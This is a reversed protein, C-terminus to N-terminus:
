SAGISSERASRAPVASSSAMSSRSTIKSTSDLTKDIAPSVAARAEPTAASGWLLSFTITAIILLIIVFLAVGFHRRSGVEAASDGVAETNLDAEEADVQEVAASYRANAEREPLGLHRAYSRIFGRVFVDAPLEDWSGVELYELTRVPIKTAAAVESLPVQRLERERRLYQGFDWQANM